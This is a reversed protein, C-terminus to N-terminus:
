TDLSSLLRSNVAIGSIGIVRRVTGPFNSFRVLTSFGRREERERERERQEKM